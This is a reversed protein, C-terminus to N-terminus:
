PLLSELFLEHILSDNTLEPHFTTAFIKNYRIFVPSNRVESLVEIEDSIHSIVPARIFVGRFPKDQDKINLDITFSDVQRGYGNRLIEIDLFPFAGEKVPSSANRRVQQSLLIAGACTGFVPMGQRIKERVANLMGNREGILIMATSEGGPMIIGDIDILDEPLIVRKVNIVIGKKNAANAIAAEHEEIAGQLGLIGINIM